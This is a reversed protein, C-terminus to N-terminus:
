RRRRKSLGVAGAALLLVTPEPIPTPSGAGTALGYYNAMTALDFINVLGDGNFDGDAWTKGGGTAYHNALVALDTVGVEGDLFADGPLFQKPDGGNRYYLNLGRLEVSAGAGLALEALYMAEPSGSAHTDSEDILHIGGNLELRGIALNSVWGAAVPGVDRGGVEVSCTGVAPGTMTLRLRGYDRPGGITTGTVSLEAGSLLLTRGADSTIQAYPGIMLAVTATVQASGGTLQLHGPGTLGVDLEGFTAEGGALIAAANGHPYVGVSLSRAVTVGGTQHFTSSGTVEDSGCFLNFCRVDLRGDHLIYEGHADEWMGVALNETRVHGGTQTLRGTGSYGVRMGGASLEANGNVEFEGDPGTVLLVGGVTLSGADLLYRGRWDQDSGCRMSLEVDVSGGTQHVQGHGGKGVFLEGATVEGGSILYTARDDPIPDVNYFGTGIRFIGGVDVSGGTQTLQGRGDAVIRLDGTVNLEGGGLCYTGGDGDGSRGIEMYATSNIGGTQVFRATGGDGIFEEGSVDLRSDIGSLTYTGTAGNSALRLRVPLYLRGGTHLVNGESWQGITLERVVGEQGTAVEAVGGNDIVATDAREPVTGSWNAGDSWDGVDVQWYQVTGAGAPQAVWAILAAALAAAPLFKGM